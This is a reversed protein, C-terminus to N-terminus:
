GKPPKRDARRDNDSKRRDLKGAARREAGRPVPGTSPLLEAPTTKDFATSHQDSQHSVTDAWLAWTTDTDSEVAKTVPIPDSVSYPHVDSFELKARSKPPVERIM